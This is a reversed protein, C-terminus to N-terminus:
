LDFEYRTIHDGCQECREFDEYTGVEQLFDIFFNQFTSIDQSKDVIKKFIPRLEEITSDVLQKDNISTSFRTCGETCELKMKNNNIYGIIQYLVMKKELFKLM